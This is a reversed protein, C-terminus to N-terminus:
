EDELHKVWDRHIWVIKRHRKSTREVALIGGLVAMVRGYIPRETNHAYGARRWRKPPVYCLDGVKLPQKAPGSEVNERCWRDAEVLATFPDSFSHEDLWERFAQSDAASPDVGWRKGRNEPVWNRRMMVGFANRALAIFQWNAKRRPWDCPPGGPEWSMYAVVEELDDFCNVKEGSYVAACRVREDYIWPEPDLHILDIHM